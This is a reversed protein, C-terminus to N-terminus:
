IEDTVKQIVDQKMYDNMETGRDSHYKKNYKKIEPIGKQIKHGVM